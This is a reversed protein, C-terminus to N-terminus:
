DRPSPSTYLLCGSFSYDLGPIHPKSFTFAKPNGQRALKDIIPGGPYGLGMVKSCKDIAEGAADDITQGLIEMDNYAKVLIIQSNGGSVLLCLFPFNPQRNEEGEAKIFHALVHGNLHNVDILPINLSRAFGKAFSVGVLLSGM